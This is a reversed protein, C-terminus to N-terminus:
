KRGFPLRAGKLWRPRFALLLVVLLASGGMSLLWFLVAFGPRDGLLAPILAAGLLTWGVVATANGLPPLAGRGFVTAIHKQQSLGLLTCGAFSLLTAIGLLLPSAM